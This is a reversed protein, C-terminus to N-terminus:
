KPFTGNPNSACNENNRSIRKEKIKLNMTGPERNLTDNVADVQLRNALGEMTYKMEVSKKLESHSKCTTKQQFGVQSKLYKETHLHTFMNIVKVNFDEDLNTIQTGNLGKETIKDQLKTWFM